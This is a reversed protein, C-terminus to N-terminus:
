AFYDTVTLSIRNADGPKFQLDTANAVLDQLPNFSRNANNVLLYSQGRWDFFLAQGAGTRQNGPRNPNRDRFARTAAAVLNPAVVAGVNFLASPATGTLTFRDGERQDFDLIQDPQAVLSDRLAEAANAGGFAFRDAGRGGRMVDGGSRGLLVDNGAGGSLNDRGNNGVLKDNGALGNLIDQGAKGFLQDAAGGGELRDNGQGGNLRDFGRDGSLIDNGAKGFLVDAGVNGRMTDNQAAGDIRDNGTGGFIRDKGGGGNLRDLGQGGRLTDFGSRGFLVDSGANGRLVDNQAGGDIRDSGQGGFIQDNGQGGLLQDAGANGRLVDNGAGGLVRDNGAGALVRDNGAGGNLRDRQRGGLLRDNGQNGFVLDAGAGGNLIDNRAGGFIRDNETGGIIRDDGANGQLIDRGAEGRVVDNGRQGFIRDNGGGGFLRDNKANGRIRDGGAGGYMRDNGGGGFLRDNGAGGAMGDRGQGGRLVDVGAKGRLFDLGAQGDLTDAGRGGNIRDRGGGGLLLDDGNQGSLRDRGAAGELTDGANGGFLRDNGAAGKLRDPCALGLLVDNGAFGRIIDTRPSGELRNNAANGALRLGGSCDKDPPTPTPIPPTTGGDAVVSITSIVTNSNALGDNAIFSFIRDSRDPSASTNNYSLSRLLTRWDTNPVDGGAANTISVTANGGAVVVSIDFTTSGFTVTTTAGNTLALATTAFSLTENAGNPINVSISLNEIDVGGNDPDVATAEDATIDIAGEGATFTAEFNRNDAGGTVNNPDLNLRPPNNPTTDFSITSTVTNSTDTGDQAVFSFVRPTTTPNASTNNYDLSRLLTRLDVNPMAGSANNTITVTSNGAASAIAINFTTGGLSVTTTAGGTLTLPTGAINLIENAGDPTNATITLVEVDVGSNDPDVVNADNPSTIDVANGGVTFTNEFNSDDLGGGDNDPDLNLVPPTNTVGSPPFSITSTVTNSNAVGDNAIFSFVRNTGTPTTSTNNYSLSRLFAQVDANPINDIGAANNTVTVTATGGTVTVAVDFTTSGFTPTATSGDTLPLPTGNILLVENAGDTVATTITLSDIDPSDLDTGTANFATIPIGGATFTTAFNGDDLGGTTNSPDLNLIPPNNAGTRLRYVGGGAVLDLGGAAGTASSTELLTGTVDTLGILDNAATVDNPFLSYGFFTQGTAIGLDAFSVFIGSVQQGGILASLGPDSGSGLDNLVAAQLEFAAGAQGWDGPVLTTLTGYATPNGSADVATIPAIKFPDNGGRELLLFGIDTNNTPAILGGREVFDVREINNINEGQNAFINDVGRNITQSLLVEELSNVPSPALNLVNTTTDVSEREYWFLERVGTVLANDIREINVQEVLQIFDFVDAGANATFGSIILNNETGVPFNYTYSEGAAGEGDANGVENATYTLTNDPLDNYNANLGSIPTPLIGKYQEIAASSFPLAIAVNGMASDLDWTGGQQANGVRRTSAAISAGTLQHLKALFEEGADGAAVNCAYLHLESHPQFWAKLEETYRLLTSLSLESNGLRLSGPSGHTVIYVTLPQAYQQFIETLKRIGDTDSPLIYPTVAPRLGAVLSPYNEVSPDFIAIAKQIFSASSSIRKHTTSAFSDSASAWSSTTSSARVIELTEM